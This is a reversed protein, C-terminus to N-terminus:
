NGVWYPERKVLHTGQFRMYEVSGDDWVHLVESEDGDRREFVIGGNPDPVVRNPPAFGSEMCREALDMSLRIIPGSPPDIGDDQLQGPNRLWNTLTHNIIQQWLARAKSEQALKMEQIFGRMVPSEADVGTAFDRYRGASVYTRSKAVQM